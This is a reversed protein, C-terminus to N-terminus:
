TCSLHNHHASHLTSPAVAWQERSPPSQEHTLGGGCLFLHPRVGFFCAHMHMGLIGGTRHMCMYQCVWICARMCMAVYVAGTISSIAGLADDKGGSFCIHACAFFCAHMHMGMNGCTHHKCMYKCVWICALMCMTMGVAGTISPIAGLFFLHACAFIHMGLRICAWIGVHIICTCPRARECACRWM